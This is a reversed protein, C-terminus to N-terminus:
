SLAVLVQHRKDLRQSAIPKELHVYSLEQQYFPNIIIHTFGEFGVEKEQKGFHQSAAFWANTIAVVRFRHWRVCCGNQVLIADTREM